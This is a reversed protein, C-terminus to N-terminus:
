RARLEEINQHLLIEAFQNNSLGTITQSEEKREVALFNLQLSNNQLKSSILLNLQFQVSLLM